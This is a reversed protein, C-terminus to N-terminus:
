GNVVAKISEATTSVLEEIENKQMALAPMLVMLNGLPRIIVGRERAKAAIKAGFRENPGFPVYKGPMKTFEIACMLGQLRIEDVHDLGAIKEELLSSLLSINETVNSELNNESILELSRKSVRAALTNGAYTQGYFFTKFESPEGLFGNYIEETTLACSIALYGASLGKGIIMIDPEVDAHTCAFMKGTKLFGTAVEDCILLAGHKKVIKYVAELYRPSHIWLGAAGQVIPEIIFAAINEGENKFVEEVEKIAASIAEEKELKKYKRLYHPPSVRISSVLVPDLHAHFERVYGVNVSGLTDGHYAGLLSVFKTRNKDKASGAKQFYEIAMRLGAEVANSGSDCYFARNLNQPVIKLLESTLELIPKHSLGLLTSHSLTEVQDKMVKVLEPEAHGHVNCWISSVGDLYRNGEVDILYNGEGKEIILPEEKVWDRMQTFPHWLHNHDVKVLEEKNM